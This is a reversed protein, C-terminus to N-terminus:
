FRALAYLFMSFQSKSWSKFHVAGLHQDFYVVNTQREVRHGEVRQINKEKEKESCCWHGVNFNANTDSDINKHM